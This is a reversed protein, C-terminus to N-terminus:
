RQPSLWKKGGYKLFSKQANNFLDLSGHKNDNQKAICKSPYLIHSILVTMILLGEVM